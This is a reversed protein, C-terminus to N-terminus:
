QYNTNQTPFKVSNTDVYKGDYGILVHDYNPVIKGDLEKTAQVGYKKFIQMM